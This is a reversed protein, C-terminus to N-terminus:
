GPHRAGGHVTGRGARAAIGALLVDLGYGFEDDLRRDAPERYRGAALATAVRALGRGAAAEGLAGALPSGAALPPDLAALDRAAAAGARVHADLLAAVRLQEREDFPGRQLQALLAELWALAHPTVPLRVPLDALWPHAAYRARLALAWAAAGEAWGPAAPLPAPAGLARDRALVVLEAKSDLHRYLANTAVGLRRAVGTLSVGALGHADGLEVATAVIADVTLAAKPGRTAPPAPVGWVRHLGPPLRTGPVGPTPDASRAV